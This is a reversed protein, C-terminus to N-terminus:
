LNGYGTGGNTVYAFPAADVTSVFILLVIVTMGFTKLLIHWGFTGDSDMYGFYFETIL